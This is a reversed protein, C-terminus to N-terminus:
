VHNIIDYPLWMSSVDHEIYDDQTAPPHYTEQELHVIEKVDQM